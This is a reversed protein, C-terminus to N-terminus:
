RMLIEQYIGPQLLVRINENDVPWKLIVLQQQYPDWIFESPSFGNGPEVVELGVNKTPDYIVMTEGVTVTFGDPYYRDAPIFIKSAGKANETHVDLVLSRNPLDFSFEMIDGAICQPYPRAIIDTIYKREITGVGLNDKFISWTFPGRDSTGTFRTGTFWAKVTGVGLSDFLHATELYVDQFDFQQMLSSDVPDYTAPGWEGLFISVDSLAADREYQRIWNIIRSKDLDYIHPAYMINERDVPTQMHVFPPHHTKRDSDNVLLPQYLCKKNANIQQSEDILRRYLPVLHKAEMEAYDEEMEGKRPENLLDYGFVSPEDKYRTWIQKWAGILYDHEGNGNKWFDAWDFGETMYVTLKFDTKLGANKGMQVLSDLHLLYPEELQNGPYGGLAGLRLRIVQFNAGMKVMRYYDNSSYYINGQKDETNVVFGRPIVHRGQEDRIPHKLQASASPFILLCTILTVAVRKPISRM